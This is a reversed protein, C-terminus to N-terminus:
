WGKTLTYALWSLGALAVIWSIVVARPYTM